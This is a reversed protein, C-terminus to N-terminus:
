AMTKRSSTSNVIFNTHGGMAFASSSRACFIAAPRAAESLALASSAEALWRTSCSSTFDRLSVALRKASATGLLDDVLGLATCGLLGVLDHGSRVGLGLLLGHAGTFDQALLHRRQGHLTGLLDQALLDVGADMGVQEAAQLRFESSSM